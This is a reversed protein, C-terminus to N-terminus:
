RPLTEGPAGHQRLSDAFNFVDDCVSKREQGIEYQVLNYFLGSPELYWFDFITVLVHHALSARGARM